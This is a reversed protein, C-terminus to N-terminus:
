LVNVEIRFSTQWDAVSRDLKWRLFRQFKNTGDERSTFYKTTQTAGTFDAISTWPGEPSVATELSLTCNTHTLVRLGVVANLYQAADVWTDKRQIIVATSAETGKVTTWPALEYTQRDAM